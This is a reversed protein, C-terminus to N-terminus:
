FRRHVFYLSHEQLLLIGPHGMGLACVSNNFLEADILLCLSNQVSRAEDGFIQKIHSTADGSRPVRIPFLRVRGCGSMSVYYLHEKIGARRESAYAAAVLECKTNISDVNV